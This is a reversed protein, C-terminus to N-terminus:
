QEGFISKKNGRIENNVNIKFKEKMKWKIKYYKIM